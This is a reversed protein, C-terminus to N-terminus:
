ALSHFGDIDIKLELEENIADDDTDDDTDTEADYDEDILETMKKLVEVLDSRNEQLLITIIEM